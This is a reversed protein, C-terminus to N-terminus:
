LLSVQQVMKVLKLLEDEVMRLATQQSDTRRVELGLRVDELRGQLRAVELGLEEREVSSLESTDPLSQHINDLLSAVNDKERVLKMVSDRISEIQSEVDDLVHRINDNCSEDNADSMEYDTPNDHDAASTDEDNTVEREVLEVATFPANDPQIEEFSHDSQHDSDSNQSPPVMVFSNASAESSKQEEKDM